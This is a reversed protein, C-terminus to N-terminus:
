TTPTTSRFTPRSGSRASNGARSRRATRNASTRSSRSTASGCNRWCYDDLANYGLVHTLFVARTKSSIKDVVQRRTWASRARISTWSCRPRLRKADRLRHRFGLDADACHNRRRRLTRPHRGAHNSQGVLRFQRLRQAQRRAVGVMGGRLRRRKEVPDSDPDDQQLFQIVADLDARAINNKM